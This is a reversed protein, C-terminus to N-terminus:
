QKRIGRVFADTQEEAMELTKEGSAFVDIELRVGDLCTSYVMRYEVTGDEGTRSLTMKVFPLGSETLIGSSHVTWGGDRARRTEVAKMMWDVMGAYDEADPDDLVYVQVLVRQSRDQLIAYINYQAMNELTEERRYGMRDFAFSGSERTVYFSVDLPTFGLLTGGAILLFDGSPLEQTTVTLKQPQIVLSDALAKATDTLADATDGEAPYAYIEALCGPQSTKLMLAAETEGDEYTYLTDFVLWTYGTNRHVGTKVTYGYERLWKLTEACILHIDTEDMDDLSIDDWPSVCIQLEDGTDLDYLVAIVGNDEIYAFFERQSLGWRNFESVSSEITLCLMGEPVTFTVDAMDTTITHTEQAPQEALALTTGALLLALLVSLWKKM